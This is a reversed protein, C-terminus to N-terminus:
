KIGTIYKVDKQIAESVDTVFSRVADTANSGKKNGEFHIYGDKDKQLSSNKSFRNQGRMFKEAIGSFVAFLNKFQEAELPHNHEGKEGWMPDATKGLRPNRGECAAEFNSITRTFFRLYSDSVLADKMAPLYDMNFVQWFLPLTFKQRAVIKIETIGKQKATFSVLGDDFEASQNISKVTRWLITQSTANYRIIEIKCVDIPKGGFLVMWNPQPLYIDREAQYIIEQAENTKVPIRAGGINDFMYQVAQAIDVKTIFFKYDYPLTRTYEFLVSGDIYRWKIGNTDAPTCTVLQALPLIYNEINEFDPPTFDNIDFGLETHQRYIKEKDYLTQWGEIFQQIGGLAYNLAVLSSYALPHTDINKTIPSLFKNIQADAVNKFPFIDTDVQQLWASSLQRIAPNKNRAQTSEALLKPVNQWNEYVTLDGQIKYKSPLGIKKLSYSNISSCYPDLGMKLAAVWDTLLVNDGAIFTNTFLSKGHRTGQMGHNSEYADIICFDIEDRQLLAAAVEEPRMRFYYHYQKARQPLIDILSKLCLSYYFEEDTKNRTFVIRFDAGLWHSSLQEDKLVSTKDFDAHELNESLSEIRYPIGDATQYTYGALDALVLMDRNELWTGSAHEGNAIILNTYGKKALLSVLHEVLRTSSTTTANLEYFELDPKILINFNGKSLKAAKRKSEIANWLKSLQLTQELLGNIGAAISTCITVSPDRM